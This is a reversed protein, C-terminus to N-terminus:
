QQLQVKLKDISDDKGGCASSIMQIIDCEVGHPTIAWM